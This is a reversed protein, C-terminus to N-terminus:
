TLKRVLVHGTLIMMLFETVEKRIILITMIIIITILIIIITIM